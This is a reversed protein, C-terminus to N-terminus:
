DDAKAIQQPYPYVQQEGPLIFPPIQSDGNAKDTDYLLTHILSFSYINQVYQRTENFRITEIWADVPIPTNLNKLWQKVRHPGANYAASALARNDYQQYLDALYQSGLLINYDPEYLKNRRFPQGVSTAVDKATTPLLQMLGMAGAGSRADSAFASEQRATAYLWQAPVQHQRAQQGFSDAYIDPFRLPYHQWSGAEIAAVIAQSHWNFQRALYASDILQSNDFSRSARRWESRAMSFEQHYFHELARQVAPISQIANLATTAPSHVQPIFRYDRKFQEATLFGYFSTKEALTVYDAQESNSITGALSKARYKWYRWREHQRLEDPLQEVLPPIATWNASAIHSRLLWELSQTDNPANLRQYLEAVGAYDRLAHRTLLYNKLNAALAQQDQGLQLSLDSALDADYRALRKLLQSKAPTLDAANTSASLANLQAWAVPLEAPKQYLRLYLAATGAHTDNLFRKLYKALQIERQGFALAFRQWALTNDIKNDKVLLHFIPDCSKPQSKASLWLDKAKALAATKDGQIYLALAYQCQLSTNALKPQYEAILEPWRKKNALHKLRARQLRDYLLPNDHQEGFQQLTQPTLKSIFKRHYRYDLHAALPYDNLKARTKRYQEFQSKDLQNNAQRYQERWQAVEPHDQIVPALPPASTKGPESSEIREPSDVGALAAAHLAFVLATTSITRGAFLSSGALPKNNGPKRAILRASIM